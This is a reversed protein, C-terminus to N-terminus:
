PGALWRRGKGLDVLWLDRAYFNDMSYMLANAGQSLLAYLLRGEPTQARATGRDAFELEPSCFHAGLGLLLDASARDSYWLFDNFTVFINPLFPTGIGERHITAWHFLRRVVATNLVYYGGFDCKGQYLKGDLWAGGFKEIERNCFGCELQEYFGCVDAQSLFREAISVHPGYIRALMIALVDSSRSELNSSRNNARVLQRMRSVQSVFDQPQVHEIVPIPIGIELDFRAKVVFSYRFGNVTEYEHISKLGVDAVFMNWSARAAIGRDLAGCSQQFTDSRQWSDLTAFESVFTVNVVNELRQEIRLRITDKEAQGHVHDSVIAFVDADNVRVLNDMMKAAVEDFTRLLGTVFLAVRPRTSNVSTAAFAGRYGAWVLSLLLFTM